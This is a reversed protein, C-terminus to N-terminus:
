EDSNDDLWDKAVAIEDARWAVRGGGWKGPSPLIGKRLLAVLADESVGLIKLAHPPRVAQGDRLAGLEHIGADLIDNRKVAFENHLAQEFGAM